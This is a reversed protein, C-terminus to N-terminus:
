IAKPEGPKEEAPEEPPAEAAPAKKPPPLVIPRGAQEKWWRLWDDGSSFEKGTLTELAERAPGTLGEAPEGSRASEGARMAAILPGIARPQRLRGLVSLALRRAAPTGSKLRAMLPDLVAPDDLTVLSDAVFQGAEPDTAKGLLALLPPGARKEGRRALESALLGTVAPPHEATLERLLTDAVEPGEIRELIAAADAEDVEKHALLTLVPALAAEPLRSRATKKDPDDEGARPTTLGQVAQRRTAADADGLALALLGANSDDTAEALAQVVAERVFAQPDAQVLGALGARIEPETRYACDRAAAARVLPDSQAFAQLVVPAPVEGRISAAPLAELYKRWHKRGAEALPARALKSVYDVPDNSAALFVEATREDEQRALAVVAAARVLPEPDRCAAALPEFARPEGMGGLVVAAGRRLMVPESERLAATLRGFKDPAEIQLLAWEVAGHLTEDVSIKNSAAGARAEPSEIVDPSATLSRLLESDFPDAHNPQADASKDKRLAMLLAPLATARGHVGLGLAALQAVTDNDSALLGILAPEASADGVALLARGAGLQLDSNELKLGAVLPAPGGARGIVTFLAECYEPLTQPFPADRPSSQYSHVTTVVPIDASIDAETVVQGDRELRVSGHLEAGTYFYGSLSGIYNAGVPTGRVEITLTLDAAEGPGALKWGTLKIAEEALEGLPLSYKEMPKAEAPKPVATMEEAKKEEAPKTGAPKGENHKAEEAKDAEGEPTEEAEEKPMDYEQKVEVRITRANRLAQRTEPGIAGPPQAAALAAALLFALGGTFGSFRPRPLM